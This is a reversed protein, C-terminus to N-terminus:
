AKSSMVLEEASSRKHFFPFHIQATQPLCHILTIRAATSSKSLTWNLYIQLSSYNNVCHSEKVPSEILSLRKSDCISGMVTM